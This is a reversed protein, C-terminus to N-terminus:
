FTGLISHHETTQCVFFTYAIIILHTHTEPSIPHIGNGIHSQIPPPNPRKMVLIHLHKALPHSWEAIDEYRPPMAVSLSSYSPPASGASRFSFLLLGLRIACFKKQAIVSYQVVRSSGSRGPVALFWWPDGPVMLVVWWQGWLCASAVLSWGVVVSCWPGGLIMQSGALIVLSWWLCSSVVIPKHLLRIICLVTTNHLLCTGIAIASM